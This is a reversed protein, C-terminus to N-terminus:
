LCYKRIQRLPMRCTIVISMMIVIPTLDKSCDEDALCIIGDDRLGRVSPSNYGVCMVKPPMTVLTVLSLSSFNSLLTTVPM